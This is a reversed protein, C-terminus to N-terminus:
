EKRWNVAFINEGNSRLMIGGSQDTRYIKSGIAKLRELVESTPHGFKNQIGASILSVKPKVYSIFENSSATKSGHHSVKLIDSNLLTKYSEVYHMEVKKDLDGTFLLSNKGYVIKLLGSKGNSTTKQNNELDNLVYIRCNSIKMIKKSYYDFPINKSRLYKEFKIDKTFSTDLQPKVIRRIKNENILSIFGGYHDADVHSVFGYDIKNINLYNLLPLIVREGNDFNATVEGADILATKGNPFKVLFSDGQGVDIMFVSLINNPMLEKDDLESFIWINFFILATTIWKASKSKFNKLSYLFIATFLYFIVANFLSFDRIWVFAYEFNGSLKVTYFLFSTFLNNAAAFYFALFPSLANLVLTFIGVGVIFGALPIVILNAFIAILSLKGFYILTFPVTGLQASISVGAFLLLNKAINNEIRLSYIINQFVPYIAAISLVAAFSLQFGPNFLEAPEIILIVLAAAAISNFLNTSRNTMLGILILASMITARVVSAPSNTLIMFATLGCITVFSRVYINLRGFLILFILVIYGVHLGSVALIHIVGSNIFETRTDLDIKSRDALILGRLLAATQANHLKSIEDDIAKRVRYVFNTFKNTNYNIVKLDKSSNAILIGSTGKGRLYENYDFEGPNRRDRGKMFLGTIQVYNGPSILNLLSDLKRNKDKIRCLLNTKIPFKSNSFMVSDTNLSFILESEKRLEINSIEGAASFDKQRIIEDPFFNYHPKQFESIFIGALIVLLYITFKSYSNLRRSYEFILLLIFAIIAFCFFFFYNHKSIPIIFDIIIGSIFLITYKIVPYNKM